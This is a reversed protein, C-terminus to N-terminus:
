LALTVKDGERSPAAIGRALARGRGNGLLPRLFGAEPAADILLVPRPAAASLHRAIADVQPGEAEVLVHAHRPVARVNSEPDVSFGFAALREAPPPGSAAPAYHSITVLALPARHGIVAAILGDGGPDVRLRCEDLLLTGREPGLRNYAALLGLGLHALLVIGIAIRLCGTM